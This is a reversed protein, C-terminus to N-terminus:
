ATGFSGQTVGQVFATWTQPSFDLVPGQPDKSDRVSVTRAGQARVEVCDGNVASYSSKTWQALAYQRSQM